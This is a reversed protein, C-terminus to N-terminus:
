QQEYLSAQISADPTMTSPYGSIGLLGDLQMKMKEVSELALSIAEEQAETVDGLQKMHLMQVTCNVVALPQCIEQVIEALTELLKKRSIQPGGGTNKAKKEAAEVVAQDAQVSEVLNKIKKNTNDALKKVQKNVDTLVKTIREKSEERNGEESDAIQKEMGALLKALDGMASVDIVQGLRQLEDDSIVGSRLLLQQWGDEDMGGHELRSKLDSEDLKDLGKSRMYKLIRAESSSIAVVKKMYEGAISDLQLEDQMTNIADTIAATNEEDIEGFANKTQDMISKELKSLARILEKKGKQTKMSKDKMVGDYIRKLSDTIVGGVSRKGEGGQQKEQADQVILEAMVGSNLAAKHIIKLTREDEPADSRKLFALIEGADDAGVVRAMQSKSIIEEEDAIERYSVKKSTVHKIEHRQLAEIFGGIEKVDEPKSCFLEVLREFEDQTIGPEILIRGCELRGLQSIVMNMRPNGLDVPSGNIILQNFNLNFSISQDEQLVQTLTKFCLGKADLADSASLWSATLSNLVVTFLSQIFDIPGANPSIKEGEPGEPVIEPM